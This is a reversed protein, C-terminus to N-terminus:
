LTIARMCVKWTISRQATACGAMALLLVVTITCLAAKSAAMNESPPLNQPTRRPCQALISRFCAKLPRHILALPPSQDRRIQGHSECFRNCSRDHKAECSAAAPRRASRSTLMRVSHWGELGLRRFAEPETPVRWSSSRAHNRITICHEHCAFKQLAKCTCGLKCRCRMCSCRFVWPQAHMPDDLSSTLMALSRALFDRMHALEILRHWSQQVRMRGAQQLGILCRSIRIRLTYM